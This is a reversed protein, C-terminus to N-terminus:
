VRSRNSSVYRQVTLHFMVTGPAVYSFVTSLRAQSYRLARMAAFRFFTFAEIIFAIWSRGSRTARSSPKKRSWPSSTSITRVGPYPLRSESWLASRELMKSRVM